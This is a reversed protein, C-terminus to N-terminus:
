AALAEIRVVRRADLANDDGALEKAKAAFYGRRSQVVKFAECVVGNQLAWQNWSYSRGLGVCADASDMRPGYRVVSEWSGGFVSEDFRSHKGTMARRELLLARQFLDPHHAALWYLEWHKSAPCFFCASKIPVYEPGLARTIAAVCDGRQWGLVQLPYLYDFHQDASRQNKSRRIDAKGCDYGILKVIRQGTVQAREWTWHPPRANPGKTVGMIYQDQPVAKWKVSCGKAGFALSPLTENAECNGFLDDYPTSALTVKRCEAVEGWGWQSIVDNIAALHAMTDPKEGGVNAFTILDPTIGADRLAVLMATSDVGAGFCVVVLRGLLLARLAQRQAATLVGLRGRQQYM